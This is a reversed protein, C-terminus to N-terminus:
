SAKKQFTVAQFLFLVAALLGAMFAIKEVLALTKLYPPSPQTTRLFAADVIPQICLAITLLGLAALLLYRGAPDFPERFAIRLVVAFVCTLLLTGVIMSLM